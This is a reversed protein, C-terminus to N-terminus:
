VIKKRNSRHKLKPKCILIDNKKLSGKAWEEKKKVANDFVGVRLRSFVVIYSKVVGCIEM